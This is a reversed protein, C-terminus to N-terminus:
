EVELDIIDYHKYRRSPVSGDLKLGLEKLYKIINAEQHEIKLFKIVKTKVRKKSKFHFCVRKGFHNVYGYDCCSFASNIM